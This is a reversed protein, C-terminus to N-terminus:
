FSMENALEVSEMDAYNPKQQNNSSFKAKTPKKNMLSQMIFDHQPSRFGLKHITLMFSRWSKHDINFDYFAKVIKLAKRDMSEKDKASFVLDYAPIHVSYREDVRKFFASFGYNIKGDKFEIFDEKKKAINKNSM